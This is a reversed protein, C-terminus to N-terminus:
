KQLWQLLANTLRSSAELPVFHGVRPFELWQAKAQSAVMARQWNPPCLRDKAGSVVLLPGEFASLAAHGDPRRAAFAFQAFAAKRGTGLAMDRVLREHRRSQQKHYFYRPMVQSVIQEPGQRCWTRKQRASNRRGADSAGQANSAVMAVREIRQPARRLLELAWLGGLSFGAVSFKAPLTRLLASAWQDTDVLGHYEIVKINAIGRLAMKQRKFVRADCLTGPIMVLTPRTMQRGKRM